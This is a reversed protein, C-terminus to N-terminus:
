TGVVSFFFYYFTFFFAIGSLSPLIGVTVVEKEM